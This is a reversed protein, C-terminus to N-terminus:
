PLEVTLVVSIGGNPVGSGAAAGSMESWGHFTDHSPMSPRSGVPGMSSRHVFRLNSIFSTLGALRRLCVTIM